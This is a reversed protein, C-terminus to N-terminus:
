FMVGIGVEVNSYKFSTTNYGASITFIGIKFIAGVDASIGKISFDTLLANGGNIDPCVLKKDGYGAGAYFYLWKATKIMIGATATMYSKAYKGDGPWVESSLCEYTYKPSTFSSRFKIYPGVRKSWGAMLGYSLDPYVGLNVGVSFLGKEKPAKKVPATEKKQPTAAPKEAPKTVPKSAVQSETSKQATTKQPPTEIKEEKKPQKRESKSASNKAAGYYNYIDVKFSIESGTIVEQEQMVDWIIKKKGTTTLRGVDGSVKVLRKSLTKGGDFSAYVAVDCCKFPGLALEYEIVITNEVTRHAVVNYSFPKSQQANLATCLLLLTLLPLIKRM